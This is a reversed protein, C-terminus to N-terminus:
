NHLFSLPTRRAFRMLEVLWREPDLERLPSGLSHLWDIFERFSIQNPNVIHFAKGLSEGKRSLHVIAKAVYDVPVLEIPVHGDVRPVSGMDLITQLSD